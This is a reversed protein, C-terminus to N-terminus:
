VTTSVGLEEAVKVIEGWTKEPVPIGEILRREKAREEVEGPVYIEEVGPLRPSSKVWATLREVEETFSDLDIFDEIRIAIALFGSGGRTPSECSCGAWTLGGALVDIMFGLGFGKHGFVGGLPLVATLPDKRLRAPDTV